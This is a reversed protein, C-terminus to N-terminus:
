TPSESLVIEQMRQHRYNLLQTIFRMRRESIIRRYKAQLQNTITAMNIARVIQRACKRFHQPMSTVMHRVLEFHNVEASTLCGFIPSSEEAYKKIKEACFEPSVEWKALQWDYHSVFLGRATDYLPAFRLPRSPETTCEVVAWNQAHRDQVGVFADFVVMKGFDRVLCRREVPNRGLFELMEVIVDVNYFVREEHKDELQFVRHMEEPDAQLFRAAIEVGHVLAEHPRRFVESMFRIGRLGASDPLRVLRFRAVSLPLTKAVTGLIAETVCERPWRRPAKAIFAREPAIPDGFVLAQKPNAGGLQMAEAGLVKGGHRFLPIAQWKVEVPRSCSQPRRVSMAFAVRFLM